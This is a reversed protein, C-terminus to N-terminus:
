TRLRERPRPSTLIQAGATRNLFSNRFSGPFRLGAPRPFYGLRRHAKWVQDKSQTLTEAGEEWRELGLALLSNKPSPYSAM